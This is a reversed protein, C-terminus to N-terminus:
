IFRDLAFAGAEASTPQGMVLQRVHHACGMALGWGYGGHATNLWVGPVGSAGLIPLGDPATMRVGRWTQLISQSRQISGPFWELLVSVLRHRADDTREPSDAYGLEAGGSIRLRSGHRTLVMGNELDVVSGRPALSQEAIQISASYSHIAAAPLRIKLPALLQATHEGACLVVADFAHETGGALLKVGHSQPQIRTVTQQTALQLGHAQLAQLLGQSFLRGNGAWAGPLYLACAMRIDTALGPELQRAEAETCQQYDIHAASLRRTLAYLAAANPEKRLPLLLGPNFQADNDLMQQLHQLRQMSLQELAQLPELLETQAQKKIHAQYKRAWRRPASLLGGSVDLEAFAPRAMCLRLTQTFATAGWPNAVCPWMLGAPAFSAEEGASRHQEFICVDNGAEMLEFATAIGAIGAGIVAIKMFVYGASVFKLCHAGSCRTDYLIAVGLADAHRITGLNQPAM